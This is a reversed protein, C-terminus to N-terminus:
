GRANERQLREIEAASLLVTEAEAIEESFAEEIAELVAATTQADDLVVAAVCVRLDPHMIRRLRDAERLAAAREPVYYLPPNEPQAPQLYRDLLIVTWAVARREKALRISEVDPSSVPNTVPQAPDAPTAPGACEGSPPASDRSEPEQPTPAPEGTTPQNARSIRRADPAM